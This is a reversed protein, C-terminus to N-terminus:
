AMKVNGLINCAASGSVTATPGVLVAAVSGTVTVNAGSVQVAGTGEITVDIGMVQVAGTGNVNIEMGKIEVAAQAKAVIAAAEIQMPGTAKLNMSGGAEISVNGGAKLAINADSKVTVGTPGTVNVNGSQAVIDIDQGAQLTVKHKKADLILETKKDMSLLTITSASDSEEFVLVHGTRSKFMRKVVKGGTVAESVPMPPTDKGNHLGGLVVPAGFDGQEFAVLVEDNVEPLVEFGRSTGAGLQVTRVWDSEYDDSLWPFKLKVRCMGSKNDTINTVIATTVGPMQHVEAEAERGGSVLGLLSRDQHDSVTLETRYALHRDWIHRTSSVIYTGSLKGIGGLCVSVGPQLAPNGVVEAEVEVFAGAIQNASATALATASADDSLASWSAEFPLARFQQALGAPTVYSLSASKAAAAQTGVVAQKAKPDWGRASAQRVQGASTLAARIRILGDDGPYYTLPDKSTLSAPAGASPATPKTFELRGAVMALRYGVRHALHRLFHWDEVNAQSVQSYVPSTPDIRGVELGAADAISAVIDSYSMQVWAKTRRGRMLRHRKDYARVITRAGIADFHAELATVEGIFVTKSTGDGPSVKVTIEAGIRLGSTGLLEATPDSFELVALDCLNLSNDVSVYVLLEERARPLPSGNVSVDFTYVVTAPPAM